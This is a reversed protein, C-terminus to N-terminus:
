DPPLTADEDEQPAGVSAPRKIEGDETLWYVVREAGEPAYPGVREISGIFGAAPGNPYIKVRLDEVTELTGREVPAGGFRQEAIQCLDDLQGHLRRRFRDESSKDGPKIWHWLIAQGHAIGVVEPSPFLKDGQERLRTSVTLFQDVASQLAAVADEYTQM